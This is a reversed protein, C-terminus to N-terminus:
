PKAIIQAVIYYISLTRVKYSSLHQLTLRRDRNTM